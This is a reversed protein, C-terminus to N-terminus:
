RFYPNHALEEGITTEPGHGPYVLTEPPLTLLQERICTILQEYSGGWLDTRGIDGAFLTDGSIVLGAEKCYFVIHGPSHGPVYRVELTTNGFQVTDGQKLLNYSEDPLNELTSHIGFLRLQESPKIPMALDAEHCYAQMDWTRMAWANGWAHDFHLHTNLLLRPTIGKTEIFSQLTAEEETSMCGCDIIAGEGTDDYLLYTNEQVPNFTFRQLYVM